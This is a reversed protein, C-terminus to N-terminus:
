EDIVGVGGNKVGYSMTKTNRNDIFHWGPQGVDTAFSLVRYGNSLSVTIEPLHGCLDIAEISEGPILGVTKLWIEDESCSGCIISNQHEFRWSWDLGLTVEGLPQGATGDRKTRAVLDGLEIYVASGHGRWAHSVQIGILSRTFDNFRDTTM